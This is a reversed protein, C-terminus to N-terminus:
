LSLAFRKFLQVQTSKPLANYAKEFDSPSINITTNIPINNTSFSDQTPSPTQLISKQKPRYASEVRVLVNTGAIKNIANVMKHLGLSPYKRKTNPDEAKEVTELSVKATRMFEPRSLGAQERKNRLFVAFEQPTMYTKEM